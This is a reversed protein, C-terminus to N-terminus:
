VFRFIPCVFARNRTFALSAAVAVAERHLQKNEKNEVVLSYQTNLKNKCCQVRIEIHM